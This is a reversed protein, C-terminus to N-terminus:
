VCVYQVQLSMFLGFGQITGPVLRAIGKSLSSELFLVMFSLCPLPPCLSDSLKATNAASNLDSHEM